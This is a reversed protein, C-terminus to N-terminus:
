LHSSSSVTMRERKKKGAKHRGSLERGLCWLICRREINGGGGDGSGNMAAIYM